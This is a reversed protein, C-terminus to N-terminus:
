DMWTNATIIRINRMKVKADFPRWMQYCRAEAGIAVRLDPFVNRGGILHMKCPKDARRWRNGASEVKVGDVMIPVNEEITSPDLLNEITSDGVTVPDWNVGDSEYVVGDALLSKGAALAASSPDAITAKAVENTVNIFDSM